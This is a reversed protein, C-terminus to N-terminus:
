VTARMGGVALHYQETLAAGSIADENPIALEHSTASPTIPERPPASDRLPSAPKTM